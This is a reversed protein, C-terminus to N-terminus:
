SDADGEILEAFDGKGAVDHRLLGGVEEGFEEATKGDIRQVSAANRLRRVRTKSVTRSM